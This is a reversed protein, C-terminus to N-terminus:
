RAPAPGGPGRPEAPPMGFVESQLRGALELGALDRVEVVDVGPPAPLRSEVPRALVELRETMRLGLAALQEETDTPRTREDVWWQLTPRGATRVHGVVEALVDRLPRGTASRHM